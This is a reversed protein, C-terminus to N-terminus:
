VNDYKEGGLIELPPYGVKCKKVRWAPSKLIGTYNLLWTVLNRVITSSVTCYTAHLLKFTMDSFQTSRYFQVTSSVTCYTAHTVKIRRALMKTRVVLKYPIRRGVKWVYVQWPSSVVCFLLSQTRVRVVKSQVIHVRRGFLRCVHDLILKRKRRWNWNETEQQEM